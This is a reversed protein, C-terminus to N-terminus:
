HREPRIPTKHPDQLGPSLRTSPGDMLHLCHEFTLKIYRIGTKRSDPKKMTQQEQVCCNGLSRNSGQSNVRIDHIGKLVRDVGTIWVDVTFDAEINLKSM